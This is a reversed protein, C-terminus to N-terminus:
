GVGMDIRISVLVGTERIVESLIEKNEVVKQWTNEIAKRPMNRRFKKSTLLCDMWLRNEITWRWRNMIQMGALPPKDNIVRENRIKWILYASESILIRFLRSQGTERKGETNKFDALGCCLITGFDFQLDSWQLGTKEWTQKALGWIEKPGPATCEILIHELTEPQGNCEKCKGRPEYGPINDWFEGVKYGNHTLMWLFCKIKKDFDKHRLSKWIAEPTPNYGYINTASATARGIGYNTARRDLAKRYAASKMKKQRIFKSALSQTVSTLRIGSVRFENDVTLDIEDQTQKQRGENALQDAKENGAIGSHGKVWNLTTHAKRKRMSAVTAEIERANKIDMFGKDEWKQLHTTLGQVYTKSDSHITLEREEDVIEVAEKIGIIEGSQNSQKVYEPLKIACHSYEENPFYVGAGAIADNTGNHICLGDTYAEITPGVNIQTRETDPLNTNKERNTFIRFTNALNGKTTIRWDFTKGDRYGAPDLEEPEYDEPLRSNPNWKAPLLNLLEQAKDYCRNPHTCETNQRINRCSTCACNRRNTHRTTHTLKAIKEADGVTKVDHNKRLCRCVNNNHQRKIEKSESHLWIPM